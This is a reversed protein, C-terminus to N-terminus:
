YYYYYCLMIIIVIIIVVECYYGLYCLLLQGAERPGPLRLGRHPPLRGAAGRRAGAPTIYYLIAYYLLICYSIIYYLM